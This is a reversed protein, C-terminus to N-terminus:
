EPRRKGAAVRVGVRLRNVAYRATGVQRCRRRDVEVRNRELTIQCGGDSRRDPIVAHSTDVGAQRCHRGALTQEKRDPAQVYAWQRARSRKWSCSRRVSSRGSEELAYPKPACIGHEHMAKFLRYEDVVSAGGYSAAADGRLILQRPLSKVNTLNIPATFKSFGGSVISSGTIGLETGQPSRSRIFELLAKEDITRVNRAQSATKGAVASQAVQTSRSRDFKRTCDTEM